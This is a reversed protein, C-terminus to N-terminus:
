MLELLGNLCLLTRSVLPIRSNGARSCLCNKGESLSPPLVRFDITTGAVPRFGVSAWMPPKEATGLMAAALPIWEEAAISALSREMEVKAGGYVHMIARRQATMETVQFM